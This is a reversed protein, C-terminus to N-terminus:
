MVGMSDSARWEEAWDRIRVIDRCRREFGWGTAGGLKPDVRELNTDAACMLSQRLYDICHRM